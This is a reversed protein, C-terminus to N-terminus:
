NKVYITSTPFAMEIAEKDFAEKIAFNISQQTDLYTTYDAITIFYSVLFKLACDGFETFHVREVEAYQQNKIIEKIIDPIKKLKETSTDYTVGITFTIRRKQLKRFNRVSASTLEKNPIILEEGSLLKIRTSRITINTVTGTFEHVNISDGIEFPRDFYIFFSTFFDSLTSQFAFAIAIGGIGLGVVAGTLDFHRIYVILLVASVYTVMQVIKKTMFVLHHKNVGEKSTKDLYFEALINVIRAVVFAGLFIELVMFVADLTASYPQLFSLPSLAYEIGIIIVLVVILSQVAGIIDDDLTTETKEAWKSFYRTFVYYVASGVVAVVLFLVISALIESIGGNLNLSQQFTQTLNFDAM